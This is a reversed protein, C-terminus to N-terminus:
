ATLEQIAQRATEFRQDWHGSLKIYKRQQDKLASEFKHMFHERAEPAYRHVDDVYPTDIDTLLYLDYDRAIAESYVWRPCDGFLHESWLVTTTLNSDCIITEFSQLMAADEASVQGMAIVPMDNAVIVGNRARLYAEAFEPVHGAKFYKALRRSLVSKGTSEPGLICVRMGSSRVSLIHRIYRRVLDDTVPSCHFQSQTMDFRIDTAQFLDMSRFREYDNVPLVRCLSLWASTEATTMDRIDPLRAWENLDVSRLNVGFEKIINLLHPLYLPKGNALHYVGAPRASLSVIGRVADDIPTVDVALSTLADDDPVVGLSKIGEVFLSLFDHKAASGTVSDATVLGLRYISIEAATKPVQLLMAEAVWKTQAYGGYVDQTDQLRDEEYVRGHNQDTAVFVSLTSAYHLHKRAGELVMRLVERTGDLNAPKLDDFSAMMNVTAACHYVADITETYFRWDAAFLGFNQLAIDGCVAVVRPDTFGIRRYLRAEAEPQSAARVLCYIKQVNDSLLEGVLRGGLSGTAGTLFLHKGTKIEPTPRLAAQELLAAFADDFVIHNRLVSARVVDGSVRDQRSADVARALSRVTPHLMLLGPSFGVGAKEASLIMSIALLSDGGVYLFHDDLGFADHRLVHQWISHIKRETPTMDSLQVVKKSLSLPYVKLVSADVKGTSTRPLEDMFEIHDPVMWHPLNNVVHNRIGDQDGSTTSVVVVLCDHSMSDNLKRKLVSAATVYPLKLLVAEIEEPEVLQGRIKFQRDIRGQFIYEGDERVLVRDGTKYMRKGSVTVFKEATLSEQALYGRALGMTEIYLEDDLVHFTVDSLPQGLLPTNWQEDCHCLSVCITAETPGYVNVVRYKKAWHRVVDPPCVEGGIVITELCDPMLDIDLVKLLSPPCDIYTIRRDQLVQVFRRPDKLVDDDEIVLTAGSLLATGIDSISADFSLSLCFLSRSTHSLNFATIQDRLMPVLGAHEVMVGKPRGTSGSTYIVYALDSGHLDAEIYAAESISGGTYVWKPKAEAIMEDRRKEPLEPSIPMFAVGAMWCGIMAVIYDASKALHLGVIDERGIDRDRLEAAFGCSRRWLDAYTVVAGRDLVAVNHPYLDVFEKLSTIFNSM